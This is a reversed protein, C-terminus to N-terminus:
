KSPKKAAPKEAAPKVDVSTASMRYKWRSMFAEQSSSVAESEVGYKRAGLAIRRRGVCTRASRLAM